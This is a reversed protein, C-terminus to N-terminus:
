QLIRGRLLVTDGLRKVTFTDLRPADAIKAFGAGLVPPLATGGFVTPGVFAAVEDVLGADFFSGLLEAGGEVLVNTVQMSGLWRLISEVAIRGRTTPFALVGCGLKKLRDVRKQPAHASVAVIVNGAAGATRALRSAVPLRAMSDLVIRRPDRGRVLRCTLEPDDALVTGIGVLVADAQSRLRHAFTRAEESSIWKSDGTKTAIRGDLTMAWKATVYPMGTEILKFYPANLARAESGLLGLEVHIGAKRLKAIGKGATKPFSDRCAVVVRKVRRKILLDACPPTKGFHACPELTVYVTSGAIRADPNKREANRVANVEAHPGGFRKHWGLGIIQTPERVIVAGVMPNPEVRGRGREALRLATRMHEIDRSTWAM